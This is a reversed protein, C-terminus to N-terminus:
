ARGRKKEEERIAHTNSYVGVCFFFNFFFSTKKKKPRINRTASWGVSKVAKPTANEHADPGFLDVERHASAM